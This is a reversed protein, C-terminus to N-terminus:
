FHARAEVGVTVPRVLSVLAPATPIYVQNAASAAIEGRQDFINRAYVSLELHSRLIVTLDADVLSYDNLHYVPSVASGAYGSTRAGTYRDTLTFRGSNGQPLKFEYTGGLAFAYKPSVPLRAGEYTVGLGPATTTLYADTYTFQGFVSLGRVPTQYTSALDVGRIRADGANKLQTVGSEIVSLQIDSWESDYIAGDLTLKRNLLSTKAGLEYTWLTDAGFSPGGTGQSLVYNPGGPRFGSAARFYVQTNDNIRFRPNILYTVVNEDSGNPTVSPTFPAAPNNFLGFSSQTFNQNDHSYRIGFTLDLRPTFYYTGDAFVSEERYSTPISASFIPFAGLIYGRPDAGNLISTQSTSDESTYFVGATWEFHHNTPSTLRVEQTVKTTSLTTPNAYSTVAAPGLVAGLLASYAFSIDNVSKIDTRQGSTISTLKAFGLDYNITASALRLQNFFSQQLPFNQYFEGRADTHDAGDREVLNDGEVRVQQDFVNLRVNLKPTIDALLSARFGTQRGSGQDDRGHNPDQAYGTDYQDFADVRLAVRDQVIPANLLARFGHNTGGHDTFSGEAELAGGYRSPDPAATVYKIAGGLSNAGYLTGQPGNLVEVRSLDFTNISLAQYGGAFSSSSGLPVDDLYLGVANSAQTGTTVGRVAIQTVGPNTEQLSLGPIFGAFEELGRANFKKLDAGSVASVESPVNQISESRRSATVIIETVPDSAGAPGVRGAQGEQGAQVPQTARATAPSTIPTQAAAGGAADLALLSAGAALMIKWCRATM